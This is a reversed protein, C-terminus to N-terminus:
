SLLTEFKEFIEKPDVRNKGLTNHTVNSEGIPLVPYMFKSYSGYILPTDTMLVITKLGFGACLHSFSTDNCIAIKCNPILPLIEEITFKNLPTCYKKLSTNIIENLINLEGENNGTAIFFHSNNKKNIIKEMFSIFTSAPVRKTNGSGGTGLLINMNKDNISFKIKAKEIDNKEIKIKSTSDVDQGITKLTFEKAAEIIHQNRKKFLPYQYIKSINSLRAVISYRLSSNFIFVVDFKKKRLDKILNFFGSIGSHKKNKKDRELNIIEDIFESNKLYVNAKTSKKTMLSIPTNYNKSIAQIYPIFMVMDGIGMKNQIVLIKM